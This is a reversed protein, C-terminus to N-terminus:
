VVNNFEDRDIQNDHNKDAAEMMEQIESDSPRDGQRALAEVLEERTIHGDDNRDFNRFIRNVDEPSRNAPQGSVPFIEALGLSQCADVFENFTIKGDRNKDASAFFAQTDYDAPNRDANKLAAIFESEGILGDGDRDLANFQQKVNVLQTETFAT